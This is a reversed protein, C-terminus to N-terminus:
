VGPARQINFIVTTGGASDEIKLSGGHLEAQQQALALGLGSGNSNPGKVFRDTLNEKIQPDIGSGSDSVSISVHKGDDDVCVSVPSGGHIVANRLINELAVELGEAWGCIPEGEFMELDIASDPYTRGVETVSNSLLTGLDVEAFSASPDLDGRGLM